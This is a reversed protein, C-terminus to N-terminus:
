MYRGIYMYLVQTHVLWSCFICVHIRARTQTHTRPATRTVQWTSEYTDGDLRAVAFRTFLADRAAPLTENFWGPLIQVAESLVGFADFAALVRQSSGDLLIELFEAGVHAADVPYREVNVPPIGKFSDAAFVRRCAHSPCTQGYTQFVSAAFIAAGGRWVGAEIFDGPINLRIVEELLFQLNDMRRLGIMTLAHVHKPPWATGYLYGDWTEHLIGLIAKKVLDLHHAELNSCPLGVRDYSCNGIGLVPVQQINACYGFFEDDVINMDYPIMRSIHDCGPIDHDVMPICGNDGSLAQRSRWEQLTLGCVVDSNISVLTVYCLSISVWLGFHRQDEM